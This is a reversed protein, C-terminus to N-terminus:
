KPWLLHSDDFSCQIQPGNKREVMGLPKGCVPCDNSDALAEMWAIRTELEDGESKLKNLISLASKPVQHGTQTWPDELQSLDIMQEKIRGRNKFDTGSPGGDEVGLEFPGGKAVAPLMLYAALFGGLHAMHAVNSYDGNVSGFWRFIELGFYMLAILTIPWPRILLIPFPIEDKPWGALYAGLLGFAAGSAGLSPTGSDLNALTWALSGGFLGITYIIIYRKTGLRQELPVGVLALIIVNGLVHMLDNQSHLFGASFMTHFYEVSLTRSPILWFDAYFWYEIWGWKGVTGALLQVLAGALVAMTIGLSVPTENRISYVIPAIIALLWLILLGVEVANFQLFLYSM